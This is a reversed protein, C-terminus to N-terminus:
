FNFLMIPRQKFLFNLDDSHQLHACRTKRQYIILIWNYSHGIFLYKLYLIFLLEWERWVVIGNMKRMVRKYIHIDNYKKKKKKKLQASAYKQNGLNLILTIVLCDLLPKTYISPLELRNWFWCEAFEYYDGILVKM